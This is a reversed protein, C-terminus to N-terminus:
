AADLAGRAFRAVSYAAALGVLGYLVRSAPNPKGYKSRAIRTVLDKRTIAVAAWNLGGVVLASTAVIDSTSMGREALSSGNSRNRAM